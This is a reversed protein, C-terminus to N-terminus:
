EDLWPRSVILVEGDQREIRKILGARVNQKPPYMVLAIKEGRRLTSGSWGRESAWTLPPGECDWVDVRGNEGPVDIVVRVHPNTWQWEAVTGSVTVERTVDYASSGHHGRVPAGALLAAVVVLRLTWAM